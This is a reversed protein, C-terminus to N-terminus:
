RWECSEPRVRQVRHLDAPCELTFRGFVHLPNLAIVEIRMLWASSPWPPDRSTWDRKPPPARLQAQRAPGPGVSCDTDTESILNVGFVSSGQVISCLDLRDLHPSLTIM